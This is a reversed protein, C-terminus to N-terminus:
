KFMKRKRRLVAFAAAGSIGSLLFAALLPELPQDGTRPRDRMSQVYFPRSIRGVSAYSVSLTHKGQYLSAMLQRTFVFATGGDSAGYSWNRQAGSAQPIVVGDIEITPYETSPATTKVLFTDSWDYYWVGNNDMYSIAYSIRQGTSSTGIGNVTIKCYAKAGSKAALTIMASGNGIPTIQFSQDEPSLDVRIINRVPDSSEITVEKDTANTPYFWYKVTRLGPISTLTVNEQDLQIATVPIKEEAKVTLRCSAESVQAGYPNYAKATVMATGPTKGTVTGMLEDVWAVMSNSCYWRLSYGAPVSASLTRTEGVNITIDSPSASLVRSTIYVYKRLYNGADASDAEFADSTLDSVRILPTYGSFAPMASFAGGAGEALVEGGSITTPAFIGVSGKAGYVAHADLAGGTMMLAKSAIGCSAGGSSAGGKASLTGGNSVSNEAYLGTSDNGSSGASCDATGNNTFGGAWVGRSKDSASKGEAALKAQYEVTVTGTSLVGVSSGGSYCDGGRATVAGGAASNITKVTLSNCRIGCSEAASGGAAALLGDVELLGSVYVGTSSATGGQSYAAVNTDSGIRLNGNVAIACSENVPPVSVTLTDGSSYSSITLDTESSIGINIGTSGYVTNDGAFLITFPSTTKITINGNITANKLFLTNRDPLYSIAYQQELINDMNSSSVQIGGVWIPYLTPITITIEVDSLPEAFIPISYNGESDKLSQPSETLFGEPHASSYEMYKYKYDCRDPIVGDPLNLVLRVYDGNKVTSGKAAAEGNIWVAQIFQGTSDSWTLHAVQTETADTRLMPQQVALNPVSQTVAFSQTLDDHPVSQPVTQLDNQQTTQNAAFINSGSLTASDTSTQGASVAGGGITYGNLDYGSQGWAFAPLSATFLAAILVLAIGKRIKVVM